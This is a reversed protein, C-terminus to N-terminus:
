QGLTELPQTAIQGAQLGGIGNIMVNAPSPVQSPQRPSFTNPTRLFGHGWITQLPFEFPYEFVYNQTGPTFVDGEHYQYLANANPNVEASSTQSPSNATGFLGNMIRSLAGSKVNREPPYNAPQVGVSGHPASLDATVVPESSVRKRLSPFSM